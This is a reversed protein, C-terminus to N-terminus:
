PRAAPRPRRGRRRSVAWFAALSAVGGGAILLTIVLEGRPLELAYFGRVPSLPFLLSNAVLVLGFLADQPEGVALIVALLTGLIFNFRTLINARLIEAVSRSTRETATNALGHSRREAVEASSLGARPTVPVGAAPAAPAAAPADAM